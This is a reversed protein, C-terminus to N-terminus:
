LTLETDVITIPHEEKKLKNVEFRKIGSIMENTKTM